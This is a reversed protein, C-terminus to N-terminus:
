QTRRAQGDALPAQWWREKPSILGARTAAAALADVDDSAAVAWAWWRGVVYAHWGWAAAFALAMSAFLVMAPLFRRWSEPELAIERRLIGAALLGAFCIVAIGLGAPVKIANVGRAVAEAATLQAPAPPDFSPWM